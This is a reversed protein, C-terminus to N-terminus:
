EIIVALDAAFLVQGDNNFSLFGTFSKFPGSTDVVTHLETGDSTVIAQGGATLNALFAVTGEDNAVNAATFASYTKGTTTITTTTVGDGRFLGDGGASLTASFVVQHGTRQINQNPLATFRGGTLYLIQPPEGARETFIGTQGSGKLTARFAV